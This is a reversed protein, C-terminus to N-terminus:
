FEVGSMPDSDPKRAPRKPKEPIREGFDYAGIEDLITEIDGLGSAIILRVLDYLGLAERRGHAGEAAM